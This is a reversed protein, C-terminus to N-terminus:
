QQGYVEELQYCSIIEGTDKKSIFVKKEDETIKYEKELNDIFDKLTIDPNEEVAKDFVFDSFVYLDRLDTENSISSIEDLKKYNRLWHGGINLQCEYVRHCETCFWYDVEDSRISYTKECDNLSDWNTIFDMLKICDNYAIANEIEGAYYVYISYPSPSDSSGMVHGCKCSLRAM